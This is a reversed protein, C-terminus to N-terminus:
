PVLLRGCQPCDAFEGPASASSRRRARQTSLDLHCGSCRSGDLRAVAVGGLRARLREYRELAAGDLRGVLTPGSPPWRRWSTPRDGGRRGALPQRAAARRRRWSPCRPTSRRSRTPWSAVAGRPVGAGPRRARRPAPRDDGARADAGGGRAARDGDAAPGGLRTRQATSRARRRARPRRDVLELEEDAAVRARRAPPPEGASRRTPRTAATASPCRAARRHALQDATTDIRQLELLDDTLVPHRYQDCRRRRCRHGRTSCTRPCRRAARSRCSGPSARRPSRRAPRSRRRPRDAGAPPTAGAAAGAAPAPGPQRVRGPAPGAAAPAAPPVTGLSTAAPPRRGARPVRQGAPLPPGAPRADAPPPAWDSPPLGALAPDM